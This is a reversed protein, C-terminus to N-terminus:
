TKPGALVQSLSRIRNELRKYEKDTSQIEECVQLMLFYVMEMIAETETEGTEIYDGVCVHPVGTVEYTLVTDDIGLASALEKIYGVTAIEAIVTTSM